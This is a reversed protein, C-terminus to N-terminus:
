NDPVGFSHGSLKVSFTHPVRKGLVNIVITIEYGPLYNNVEVQIDSPNIIIRPEWKRLAQYIIISIQTATTPDLPEQLLDYLGCFYDEQFIRGRAGQPCILLNRIASFVAAADLLLVSAGEAPVPNVDIYIAESRTQSRRILVSPAPLSNLQGM